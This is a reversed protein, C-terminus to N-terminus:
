IDFAYYGFIAFSCMWMAAMAVFCRKQSFLAPKTPFIIARFRDAALATMSFISVLVSVGWVIWSVTCLVTALNRVDFLLSEHVAYTMWIPLSITPVLLDSISMNVIFYNVPTRLTKDRCFAAIVLVNGVLSSVLILSHLIVMVTVSPRIGTCFWHDFTGNTNNFALTSENFERM